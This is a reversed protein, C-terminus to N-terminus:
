LVIVCGFLEGNAYKIPAASDAVPIKSGDKRIMLAGNLLSTKQGTKMAKAIVDNIKKKGDENTFQLTKRYHQGIAESAAFETLKEAVHNFLVVKGNNDCAIVADGISSLIAKEKTIAIKLKSKEVNLDKLVKLTKKYIEEKEKAIVALKKATLVLKKRINEKEKATMALKKATIVLRGRINEKEKALLALQKATVVLKSRVGEKKKALVKLKLITNDTASTVTNKNM